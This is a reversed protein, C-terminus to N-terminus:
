QAVNHEVFKVLLKYPSSQVSYAIGVVAHYRDSATRTGVLDHMGYGFPYLLFEPQFDIGFLGMYSSRVFQFIKTKSKVFGCLRLFPCGSGM